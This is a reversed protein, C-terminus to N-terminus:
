LPFVCLDLIKAGDRPGLLTMYNFICSRLFTMLLRLWTGESELDGWTQLCSVSPTGPVRRFLLRVSEQPDESFGEPAHHARLKFTWGTKGM